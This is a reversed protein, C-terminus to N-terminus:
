LAGAHLAHMGLALGTLRKEHCAHLAFRLLLCQVFTLTLGRVGNANRLKNFSHPGALVCAPWGKKFM